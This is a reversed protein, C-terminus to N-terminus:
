LRTGGEGKGGYRVKMFSHGGRGKRRIEGEYALAGGEGKGGFTIRFRMEVRKGGLLSWWRIEELLIVGSNCM